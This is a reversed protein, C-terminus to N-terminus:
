GNFVRRQNRKIADLDIEVNTVIKSGAQKGAEYGAERVRNMIPSLKVPQFILSAALLYVIVKKM